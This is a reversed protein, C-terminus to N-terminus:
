VKLMFCIVKTNICLKNLYPKNLIPDRHGAGDQKVHMGAAPLEWELWLTQNTFLEAPATQPNLAKSLPVGATPKVPASHSYYQARILFFLWWWWWIMMM